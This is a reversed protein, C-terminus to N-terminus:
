DLKSCILNKKKKKEGKRKEGEKKGEGKKKNEERWTTGLEANVM